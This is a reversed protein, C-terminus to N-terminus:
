DARIIAAIASQPVKIKDGHSWGEFEWRPDPGIGVLEGCIFGQLCDEVLVYFDTSHGAHFTITDNPRAPGNNIRADNGVFMRGFKLPLPNPFDKYM